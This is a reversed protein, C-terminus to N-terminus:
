LERIMKTLRKADTRTFKQDRYYNKEFEKVFKQCKTKMEDDQIRATFEELGESRKKRYGSREMKRLFRRIIHSGRDEKTFLIVRWLLFAFIGSLVIVGWTVLNDRVWSFDLSPKKLVNSLQMYLSLQKQFDYNIVLANWYYNISDLFLRIKVLLAGQAISTFREMSAPTPDVRVWGAKEIYAEVWVHANSQPVIYYSGLKNYFGGKYGGILRSPIGVSRLMLAMASAFYECNGYKNKFLFDDLPRSSVPLNQLSYKYQGGQLFHLFTTLVDSPRRHASLEEALKKIASSLSDPLQLYHREDIKEEPITESVISLAEYQIRKQLIEPLSFTYDGNMKVPRPSALVVPKDLAFLYSNEYPELYVTQRVRPGKIYTDPQPIAKKASRWERGNFVDLVVGRWYLSNEDTKEMKVRFLISTDEQIDSVGGLKVNDTFGTRAKESNLFSFLPFSTRPLIVFLLLTLPIASAPILLTKAAIKLIVSKELALSPDQSHYTLFVIAPTLLILLCFFYVLFTMDASLLASGSLLLVSITYIQMYDRFKKDELFKIALLIVLAELIPVVPDNIDLRLLTLCIVGLSLLNLAWRPIFFLNRYEAYISFLYLVLFSILYLSSIHGCVSLFGIAGILNSIIRVISSVKTNHSNLFEM